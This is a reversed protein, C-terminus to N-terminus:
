RSASAPSYQLKIFWQKVLREFSTLILCYCRENPQIAPKVGPYNASPTLGGPYLVKYIIGFRNMSM